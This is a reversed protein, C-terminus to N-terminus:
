LLFGDKTLYMSWYSPDLLQESSVANAYPGYELVDGAAFLLFLSGTRVWVIFNASTPDNFQMVTVFATEVSESGAASLRAVINLSDTDWESGIAAVFSQTDRNGQKTILAFKFGMM